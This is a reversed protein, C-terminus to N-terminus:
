CVSCMNKESICFHFHMGETLGAADIESAPHKDQRKVGYLYLSKEPNGLKKQRGGCPHVSIKYKLIEVTFRDSQSKGM